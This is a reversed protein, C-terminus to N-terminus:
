GSRRMHGHVLLWKKVKCYSTVEAGSRMVQVLLWKKVKCMPIWKAKNDVGRCTVICLFGNRLSAIILWTAM